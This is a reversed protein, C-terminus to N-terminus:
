RRIAVQKLLSCLERASTRKATSCHRNVVEDFNHRCKLMLCLQGYLSDNAHRFHRVKISDSRKGCISPIDCIRVKERKYTQIFVITLLNFHKM